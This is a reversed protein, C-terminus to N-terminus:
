IRSIKHFLRRWWGPHSPGSGDQPLANRPTPMTEEPRPLCLLVPRVPLALPTAPPAPAPSPSPSPALVAKPKRAARQRKPKPPASKVAVPAARREQIAAIMAQAEANSIGVPRMRRLAAKDAFLRALADDDLTELSYRFEDDIAGVIEEIRLM